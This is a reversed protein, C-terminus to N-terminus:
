HVTELEEENINEDWWERADQQKPPKKKRLDKEWSMWGEPCPHGPIDIAYSVLGFPGQVPPSLIEVEIGSFLGEKEADAGRVGALIAIEGKEFKPM